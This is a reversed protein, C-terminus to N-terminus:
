PEHFRGGASLGLSPRDSSSPARDPIRASRCNNSSDGGRVSSDIIGTKGDPPCM